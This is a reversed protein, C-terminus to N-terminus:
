KARRRRTSAGRRGIRSAASPSRAAHSRPLADAASARSAASVSLRRPRGARVAVGPRGAAATVPAAAGRTGGGGGVALLAVGAGIMCAGVVWQASLRDGFILAGAAGACVFSAATQQVTARASGDLRMGRVFCTLAFSNVTVLLLLLCGRTAGELQSRPASLIRALSCRSRPAASSATAFHRPADECRGRRRVATCAWPANALLTSQACAHRVLLAPVSDASLALKAVVSGVAALAGGCIAPPLM